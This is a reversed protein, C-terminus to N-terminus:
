IRAKAYSLKDKKITGTSLLVLSSKSALNTRLGACQFFVLGFVQRKPTLASNNFNLFELRIQRNALLVRRMCHNRIAKMAVTGGTHWAYCCSFSACPSAMSKSKRPRKELDLQAAVLEEKSWAFPGGAHYPRRRASPLDAGSRRARGISFAEPPGLNSLRSADRAKQSLHPAARGAAAM